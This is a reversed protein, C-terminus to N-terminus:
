PAPASVATAVAGLGLRRLCVHANATPSLYREAFERGARGVDERLAASAALRRLQECVGDPTEAHLGPLPEPYLGALLEPRFNALVPRGIALADTMVLGPLSHGFQDTVVDAQRMEEYVEALSMEPLWTVNDEVDLERVLAVADEVHYGKAVLRLEADGRGRVFAAFGRILVDTGKHDQASFGPPMPFRYNVRTPNFIRLRANGPAPRFALRMTDSNWTFFRRSDTVGISELLADGQPVLGKHAFSVAESGLIGDRQRTILNALQRQARRGPPSRYFEPDGAGRRVAIMGYDAYHTLDSGTLLSLAPLGLQQFLSPGLDNLLVGRTGDTLFAIVPAVAASERLYAEETVASADLIWEPYGGALDADQSEPRHLRETRNVVLVAKVGLSRLGKALVYPYNNTNGFIGIKM